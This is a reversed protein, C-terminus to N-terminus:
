KSANKIESFYKKLLSRQLQDTALLQQALTSKLNNLKDLYSLIEQFRFWDPHILPAVERILDRVDELNVFPIVSGRHRIKFSGSQHLGYILWFYFKFYEEHPCVAIFSNTWPSFAPKGANSGKYLIFFSFDPVTAAAHYCHIMPFMM